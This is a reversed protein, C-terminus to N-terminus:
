DIINENMFELQARGQTLPEDLRNMAETFVSILGGRMAKAHGLLSKEGM